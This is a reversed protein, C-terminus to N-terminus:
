GEAAGPRAQSRDAGTSPQGRVSGDEVGEGRSEKHGEGPGTAPGLLMDTRAKSRLLGDRQSGRQGRRAALEDASTAPHVRAEEVPGDGTLPALEIRARAAAKRRATGLRKAEARAHERIAETQEATLRDAPHATCLHEGGRYVEISRDDHPMFRILVKERGMGVLEPAVYTLNGKHIGDKGVTREEAALLLHRLKDAGIRTIPATDDEWAQVPTRGDLRRHPKDHNYWRVWDAFLTAFREIRM